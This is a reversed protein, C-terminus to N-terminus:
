FAGFNFSIYFIFSPPLPSPLSSTPPPSPPPLFFQLLFFTPCSLLLRLPYILLLFLFFLRQLVRQLFLRLLLVRPPFLLLRLYSLTSFIFRSPPTPQPLLYKTPFSSSHPPPPTPLPALSLPLTAFLYSFLFPSLPSTSSSSSYIPPLLGFSSTASILFRLAAHAPRAGYGNFFTTVIIRIFLHRPFHFSIAQPFTSM